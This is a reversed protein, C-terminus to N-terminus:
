FDNYMEAYRFTQPRETIKKHTFERLCLRVAKGAGESLSGKAHRCLKRSFHLAEPHSLEGEPSSDRLSQPAIFPSAFFANFRYRRSAWRLTGARKLLYFTERAAFSCSGNATM